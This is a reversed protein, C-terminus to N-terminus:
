AWNSTLGSGTDAPGCCCVLRLPTRRCVSSVSPRGPKVSGALLILLKPKPRYCSTPRVLCRSRHIDGFRDCYFIVSVRSRGLKTSGYSGHGVAIYATKVTQLKDNKGSLQRRIRAAASLNVCLLSLCNVYPM